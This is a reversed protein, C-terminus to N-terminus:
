EPQWKYTRNQWKYVNFDTVNGNFNIFLTSNNAKRPCFFKTCILNVGTYPSLHKVFCIICTQHLFISPPCFSAESVLTCDTTRRHSPYCGVDNMADPMWFRTSLHFLINLCVCIIHQFMFCHHKVNSCTVNNISNIWDKM